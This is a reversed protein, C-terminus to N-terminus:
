PFDGNKMPFSVIFQWKWYSNQCLWLTHTLYFVQPFSRPTDSQHWLEVVKQRIERVLLAVSVSKKASCPGWCTTSKSSGIPFYLDDKAFRLFVVTKLSSKWVDQHQSESCAVQMSVAENWGNGSQMSRWRPLAARALHIYIYICM